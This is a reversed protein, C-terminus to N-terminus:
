NCGFTTRNQQLNRVRSVYYAFIAISRIIITIARLMLAKRQDTQNSSADYSCFVTTFGRNNQGCMFSIPKSGGLCFVTAQPM